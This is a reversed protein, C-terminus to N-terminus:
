THCNKEMFLLDISGPLKNFDGFLSMVGTLTNLVNRVNFDQKNYHSSTM